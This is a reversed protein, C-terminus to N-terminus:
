RVAGKGLRKEAEQRVVGYAVKGLATHPLADMFLVWKPVKYGALQDRVATRVADESVDCGDQVQVVACVAEGWHDDPLGIVCSEAVGPCRSIAAEVERAYVTEGGTKIRGAKRDVYYVFGDEDKRGIDGSHFWGGRWARASVDPRRWYGSVFADSRFVMEGPTGVPVDNDDDDVLRMESLPQIRGCSRLRGQKAPDRLAELHEPGTLALVCGGETGMGGIQGVDCEFLRLFRRLLDDPIPNSGYLIMRLTSLDYADPAKEYADCIAKLVTPVAMTVTIREKEVTRMMAEPDPAPLLVAPLGLRAPHMTAFQGGRHFLPLAVLHRDGPRSEAVWALSAQYALENRSSIMAGKPEGTTGSTYCLTYVAEADEHPEIALDPSSALLDAYCGRGLREDIGLLPLQLDDALACGRGAHASDVLLLSPGADQLQRRMEAHTHRVNLATVIAKIRSASFALDLYEVCNHALLAIRDGAGIGLADRFLNGARNIRQDYEAWTFRRPGDVYAEGDPTRLANVRPLDGIVTRSM